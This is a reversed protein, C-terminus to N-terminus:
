ILGFPIGNTSHLLTVEGTVANVGIPDLEDEPPVFFYSDYPPIDRGFAHPDGRILGFQNLPHRWGAKYARQWAEPLDMTINFSKWYAFKESKAFGPDEPLSWNPYTTANTRIQFRNFLLPISQVFLMTLTPYRTLNQPRPRHYWEGIIIAPYSNNEIAKGLEIGAKVTALFNIDPDPSSINAANAAAAAEPTTTTLTTCELDNQPPIIIHSSSPVTAGYANLISTLVIVLCLLTAM